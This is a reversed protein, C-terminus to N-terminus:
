CTQRIHNWVACSPKSLEIFARVGVEAQDQIQVGLAWLSPHHGVKSAVEALDEITELPQLMWLWIGMRILGLQAVVGVGRSEVEDLVESV